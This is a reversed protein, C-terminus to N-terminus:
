GNLYIREVRGSVASSHLVISEGTAVQIDIQDLRVGGPSAGFLTVLDGPWCPIGTVDVVAQDMCGTLFRTLTDNVLVPGGTSMRHLSLGDGYGVNIVAIMTEKTATFHRGYGTSEGPKLRRVQGISARWTACPEVGMPNATNDMGSLGFLACGPRIHTSVSDELWSLAGTNCCHIYAPAIGAEHVQAVGQVFLQYQLRTYDDEGATATAFHTYVGSVTVADARKAADLLATLEDGPRAGIRNMGTEIKLHVRAPKGMQAALTNIASLEEASGVTPQLDFDLAMHMQHATLPTFILIDVGEGLAQRIEMGESFHGCAMLRPNLCRAIHAAMPLTGYGYANGKIVPIVGRRGARAAVIACNRTVAGLSIELRSNYPIPM